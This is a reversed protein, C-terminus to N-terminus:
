KRYGFLVMDTEFHRSVRADSELNYYEFFGEKERMTSSVNRHQLRIDPLGALRCVTHFDTELSEYRGIFDVIIRSRVSAAVEKQNVIGSPNTIRLRARWWRNLITFFAPRNGNRNRLDEGLFGEEFHPYYRLFGELLSSFGASGILYEHCQKEPWFQANRCFTDFDMKMVAAKTQRGAEDWDAATKKWWFYLSLILDLPHRVFAFKFYSNWTEEGVFERIESATSHKHIWGKAKYERSLAEFEPTCGLVLDDQGLYPILSQTISTGACKPIHIFIFKYKHSLIL